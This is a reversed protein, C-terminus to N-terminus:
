TGKVAKDQRFQRHFVRGDAFNMEGEGEKSDNAVQGNFVDGLAKWIMGDGDGHWDHGMHWDGEFCQGQHHYAM